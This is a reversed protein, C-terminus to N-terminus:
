APFLPFLYLRPIRALSCHALSSGAILHSPSALAILWCHASCRLASWAGTSATTATTTAITAITATTIAPTAATIAPTAATIAPTAVFPSTSWPTSIRPLPLQLRFLQLVLETHAVM